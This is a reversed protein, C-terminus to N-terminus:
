AIKGEAVLVANLADEIKSKSDIAFAKEINPLR